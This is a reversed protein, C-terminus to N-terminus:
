RRSAPTSTPGVPRPSCVSSPRARWPTSSGSPGTRAPPRSSWGQTSRRTWRRWRRTTPGTRRLSSRARTSTRASSLPSSSCRVTRCRWGIWGARSPTGCRSPRRSTPRACPRPGAAPPWTGGCSACSSRTAAPRTACCPRTAVPGAPRSAARGSRPLRRHGRHRARRPRPTSRRGAPLASRDGARATAVPGARHDPALRPVPDALGGDARVLYSLLQLATSGAWHLDELVLVLPRQAAAARFADVAADYLRRQHETAGARARGSGPCRPSGTPCRPPMADPSGPWRCRGAACTPCAAGRHPQVFPQYPPGFEEICSGLLVAAGREHLVTAVEALLRSKGGGPDGGVFVVQRAGAVAEGWVQELVALERSRGVFVPHATGSWRVPM